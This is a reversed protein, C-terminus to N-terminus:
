KKNKTINKQDNIINKLKINENKINKLQNNLNIIQNYLINAEKCLVKYSHNDTSFYKFKHIFNKM